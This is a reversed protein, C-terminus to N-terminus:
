GDVGVLEPIERLDDVHYDVAPGDEAGYSITTMGVTYLYDGTHRCTETRRQEHIVTRHLGLADM